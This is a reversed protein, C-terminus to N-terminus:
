GFLWFGHMIAAAITGGFAAIVFWGIVLLPIGFMALKDDWYSFDM